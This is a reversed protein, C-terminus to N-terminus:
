PLGTREGIKDKLNNLARGITPVPDLFAQIVVYDGGRAGSLFTGLKRKKMKGAGGAQGETSLAEKTKIKTSEVDPQDFPNIGLIHGAVATALEWLYFHGPLSHVDKITMSVIPFGSRGSGGSAGTWAGTREPVSTYLSVTVAM